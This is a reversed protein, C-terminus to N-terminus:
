ALKAKLLLHSEMKELMDDRELYRKMIADDRFLYLLNVGYYVMQSLIDFIKVNDLYRHFTISEFVFPILRNKGSTESIPENQRKYKELLEPASAQSAHEHQLLIQILEFTINQYSELLRQIMRCIKEEKELDMKKQNVFDSYAPYSIVIVEGSGNMYDYDKIIEEMVQIHSRFLSGTFINVKVSKKEKLIEISGKLISGYFALFGETSKSLYRLVDKGISQFPNKEYPVEKSAERNRKLSYFEYFYMKNFMSVWKSEPPSDYSLHDDVYKIEFLRDELQLVDRDVNDLHNKIENIAKQNFDYKNKDIATVNFHNLLDHHKVFRNYNISYLGLIINFFGLTRKETNVIEELIKLTERVSDKHEPSTFLVEFLAEKLTDKYNPDYSLKLYQGMFGEIAKLNQSVSNNRDLQEGEKIFKVLFKNLTSLTNYSLPDLVKWGHLLAYNVQKFLHERADTYCRRWFLLGEATLEKKIGFFRFNITKTRTGFSILKRREFILFSLINTQTIPIITKTHEDSLSTQDTEDKFLESSTGKIGLQDDLEQIRKLRSVISDEENIIKQVLKKAKSPREKKYLQVFKLYSDLNTILKRNTKKMEDEVPNGM